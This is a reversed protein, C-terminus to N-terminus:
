LEASSFPLVHRTPIQCRKIELCPAALVLTTRTSSWPMLTRTSGRSSSRVRATRSTLCDICTTRPDIDLTTAISINYWMTVHYVLLVWPPVRLCMASAKAYGRAEELSSPGPALKHQGFFAAINEPTTDRNSPDLSDIIVQWQWQWPAVTGCRM